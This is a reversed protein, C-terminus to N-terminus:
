ITSLALPGAYPRSSHGMTLALLVERISFSSTSITLNRLYPGRSSQCLMSLVQAANWDRLYLSLVEFREAQKMVKEVPKLWWSDLRAHDPKLFIRLPAQKSRALLEETWRLSVM